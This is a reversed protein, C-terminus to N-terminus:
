QIIHSLGHHGFEKPTMEDVHKLRWPQIPNQSTVPTLYFCFTVTAKSFCETQDVESLNYHLVTVLRKRMDYKLNVYKKQRCTM